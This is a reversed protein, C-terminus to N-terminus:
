HTGDSATEHGASCRWLPGRIVRLSFLSILFFDSGSVLRAGDSVTDSLDLSGTTGEKALQILNSLRAWQFKNDQFLIQPM